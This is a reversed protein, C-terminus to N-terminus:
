LDNKSIGYDKISDFYGTIKLTITVPDKEYNLWYWGHEGSFPAVLSGSSQALSDAENYRVFFDESIASDHGHFDVYPGPGSTSWAYTFVRGQKIITKIETQEGEKLTVQVTYTQAPETHSQYVGPNPLPTPEGADAVKINKFTNADGIINHIELTRVPTSANLKMLGAAKGLGTPDIGFEAPLIMTILITVAAVGAIAISKVLKKNSPPQGQFSPKNKNM